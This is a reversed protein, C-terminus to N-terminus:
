VLEEEIGPQIDRRHSQGGMLADVEPMLHYPLHHLCAFADMVKSDSIAHHPPPPGVIAPCPAACFETRGALASMAYEALEGGFRPLMLRDATAKAITEDSRSARKQRDCLAQAIPLRDKRLWCRDGDM